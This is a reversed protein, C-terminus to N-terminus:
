KFVNLSIGKCIRLKFQKNYFIHVYKINKFFFVAMMNLEEKCSLFKQIDGESIKQTHILKRIPDYQVFKLIVKM